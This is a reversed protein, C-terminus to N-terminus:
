YKAWYPVAPVRCVLWTFFSKQKWLEIRPTVRLVELMDDPRLITVLAARLVISDASSKIVAANM